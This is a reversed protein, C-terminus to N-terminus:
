DKAHITVESDLDAVVDGSVQFELTLRRRGIATEERGNASMLPLGLSIIDSSCRIGTLVDNITAWGIKATVTSGLHNSNLESAKM